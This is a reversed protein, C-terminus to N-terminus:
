HSAFRESRTTRRREATTSRRPRHAWTSVAVMVPLTVSGLPAETSPRPNARGILGIAEVVAGRAAVGADIYQRRQRDAGVVEFYTPSPKWVMRRRPMMSFAPVRAFTSTWIASPCTESTTSTM